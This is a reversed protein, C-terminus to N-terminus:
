PLEDLAKGIGYAEFAAEFREPTMEAIASVASDWMLAHAEDSASVPATIKAEVLGIGGNEGVNQWLRLFLGECGEETQGIYALGQGWRTQVIAAHILDNMSEEENAM